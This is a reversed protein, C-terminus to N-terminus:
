MCVQLVQLQVERHLPSLRGPAALPRKPCPVRRRSRQLFRWHKRERPVPAPASLQRNQPNERRPCSHPPYLPCVSVVHHFLTEGCPVPTKPVVFFFLCFSRSGGLVYYSCSLTLKIVCPRSSVNRGFSVSVFATNEQKLTHSLTNISQRSRKRPGSKRHLLSSVSPWCPRRQICRPRFGSKRGFPTDTSIVGERAKDGEGWGGEGRVVGGRM